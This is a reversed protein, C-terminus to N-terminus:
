DARRVRRRRWSGAIGGPFLLLCLILLVGAVLLTWTTSLGIQADLFHPIVGGTTMLGALVAGSVMTIGGVYSFAVFQLAILIGFRDVNVSGLAYAYLVGGVGAICSSLAYAAFKTTRVSVGSAAAARENSRVALMRMGLGSGRVRAVLLFAAVAIALLLCGLVPSPLGGSIAGLGAGSGVDVGLITPEPVPSASGGAGWTSNNFGFQEIAVAAALTVVALSV